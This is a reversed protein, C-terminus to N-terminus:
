ICYHFLRLLPSLFLESMDLALILLVHIAVPTAPLLQLHWLHAVSLHASSGTYYCLKWYVPVSVHYEWTTLHYQASAQCSAVIPSLPCSDSAWKSLFRNVHPAPPSYHFVYNDIYCYAVSWLGTTTDTLNQFVVMEHNLCLVRGLPCYVCVCM